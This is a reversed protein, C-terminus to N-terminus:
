DLRRAIESATARYYRQLQRLDRHGTMRALDNIDLRSALRTIATARSDHFTFQGELGARRRLKRFTSDFSGAEIAFPRDPDLSELIAVAAKSLPVDRASGNKTKPLRVYHQSLFITDATLSRIEGARMATELAFDLAAAVLQQTTEPKVGREYRAVAFILAAQDPSITQERPPPAPPRRVDRVPNERVWRWERRASEWVSSLLTLERLLSGPKITKLREDRWRAIDDPEIDAMPRDIFDMDRAFRDLRVKEWRAGPKTPSVERKYRDLADRVLKGDGPKPGARLKEELDEAWLRAATRTPFTRTKRTGRVYVQAEVKGNRKRYTPM